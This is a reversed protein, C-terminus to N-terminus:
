AEPQWASPDRSAHPVALVIVEDDDPEYRYVILYQSRRIPCIRLGGDDPAYMEPMAGIRGMAAAVEDEFRRAARLSRAEYWAVAGEVDAEARRLLRV